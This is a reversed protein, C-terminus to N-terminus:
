GSVLEPPPDFIGPGIMQQLPYTVDCASFAAVSRRLRFFRLRRSLFVRSVPRQRGLNRHGHIRKIRLPNEAPM